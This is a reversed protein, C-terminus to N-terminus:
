EDQLPVEVSETTTRVEHVSASFGLDRMQLADRILGQSHLSTKIVLHALGQRLNSSTLWLEYKQSEVEFGEMRIKMEPNGSLSEESEV